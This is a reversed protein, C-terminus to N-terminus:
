MAIKMCDIPMYACGIHLASSGRGGESEDGNSIFRVEDVYWANKCRVIVEGITKVKVLGSSVKGEVAM